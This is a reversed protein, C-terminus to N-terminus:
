CEAMNAAFTKKDKPDRKKGEEDFEQFDWAIGGLATEKYAKKMDQGTKKLVRITRDFSIIHQGDGRLALNASNIAKIAAM